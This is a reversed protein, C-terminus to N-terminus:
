ARAGVTAAPAAPTAAPKKTATAAKAKPKSAPQGEVPPTQAAPPALSVQAAADAALTLVSASILLSRLIKM